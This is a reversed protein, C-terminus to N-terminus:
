QARASMVDVLTGLFTILLAEEASEHSKDHGRHANHALEHCFTVFWYYVAHRTHTGLCVGGTSRAAAAGRQHELELYYHANFYLEGGKNFAILASDQFFISVKTNTEAVGWGFTDMALTCACLHALHKAATMDDSTLRAGSEVYLNIASSPVFEGFEFTHGAYVLDIPACPTCFVPTAVVVDADCRGRVHAHAGAGAAVRKGVCRQVIDQTWESAASTGGRLVGPKNSEPGM